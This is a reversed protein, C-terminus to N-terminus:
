RFDRRFMNPEESKTPAKVYSGMLKKTQRINDIYIRLEAPELSVETDPTLISRSLTFHREIVEAGLGVAAVAANYGTTHDSFGVHGFDKKLTTICNLNAEKDPAPYATTCHLVTLDDFYEAAKRVEKLTAMGTSMIIPVGLNSATKLYSKNHIQGSPIKIKCGMSGLIELSEIDFASCIYEIGISECFNMLEKHQDKEFYCLRLFDHLAPDNIKEVVYMQFKVADAGAEKATKIMSYALLLNGLHNCCAEAIVM